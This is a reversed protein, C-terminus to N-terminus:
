IFRFVRYNDIHIYSFRITYPKSSVQSYLIYNLKMDLKEKELQLKKHVVSRRLKTLGDWAYLLNRQGFFCNDTLISAVRVVLHFCSM